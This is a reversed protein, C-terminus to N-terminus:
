KERELPHTPSTSLHALLRDDRGALASALVGTTLALALTTVFAAGAVWVEVTTGNTLPGLAAASADANESRLFAAVVAIGTLSCALVTISRVGARLMATSIPM